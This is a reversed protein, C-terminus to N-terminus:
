QYSMTVTMVSNATGPSVVNATQIYRARFNATYTPASESAQFLLFQNATDPQSSDPGLRVPVNGRLVQVALGKATSNTTLPLKDSTNNNNSPDSMVMYVDSEVGSCNVNISFNVAPSVSGIGSFIRGSHEGLSVTPPVSVSCTQSVIAINNDLVLALLNNNGNWTQEMINGATLVTGARIRNSTKVVVLQAYSRIGDSYGLYLPPNPNGGSAQAIAGATTSWNGNFMPRFTSDNENRIQIALGTDRGSNLIHANSGTTDSRFSLRPANSYTVADNASSCIMANGTTTVTSIQARAVVTGIPADRPIVIRNSSASYHISRQAYNNITPGIQCAASAYSITGMASLGAIVNLFWKM